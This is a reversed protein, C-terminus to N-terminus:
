TILIYVKNQDEQTYELKEFKSSILTKHTNRRGFERMGVENKQQKKNIEHLNFIDEFQDLFKLYDKV